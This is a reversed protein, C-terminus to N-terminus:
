GVRWAVGDSYVPCAITGGGTLPAGFSPALADTVFERAGRGADAPKSLQLTLVSKPSSDKFISDFFLYWVRSFEGTSETAQERSPPTRNM